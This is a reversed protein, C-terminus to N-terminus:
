DRFSSRDLFARIRSNSWSDAAPYIYESCIYRIIDDDNVPNPHRSDPEEYRWDWGADTQLWLANLEYQPVENLFTRVSSSVIGDYTDWFISEEDQVQVCIEDWVNALESDDGSLIDKIEQLARITRQTIREAANKAVSRVVETESLSETM